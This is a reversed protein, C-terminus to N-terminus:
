VGIITGKMYKKSEKPGLETFIWSIKELGISYNEDTHTLSHREAM